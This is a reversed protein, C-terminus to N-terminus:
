EDVFLWSIRHGTRDAFFTFGRSEAGGFTFLDTGDAASVFAFDQDIAGDIASVQKRSVTILVLVATRERAICGQEIFLYRLVNNVRVLLEHRRDSKGNSFETGHLGGSSVRIDERGNLREGICM